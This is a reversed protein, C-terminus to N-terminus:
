VLGKNLMYEVNPDNSNLNCTMEPVIHKLCYFMDFKEKAKEM